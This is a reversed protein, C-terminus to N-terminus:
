GILVNIVKEWIKVQKINMILAGAVLLWFFLCSKVEEILLNGVAM